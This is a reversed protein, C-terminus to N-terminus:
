GDSFQGFEDSVGRNLIEKLRQGYKMATNQVVEKKVLLYTILEEMFRVDLKNLSLDIVEYRYQLFEIYRRKKSIMKELTNPSRHGSAVLQLFHLINENIALVLTKIWTKCDFITRSDISLKEILKVLQEKETKLLALKEPGPARGNRFAKELRNAYDVYEMVLQDLSESFALNQIREEKMREGNIPTRYSELVLAPTALEHQAKILDFHRELDTKTQGIKKNFLKSGPDTERVEKREIDWDDSSVKFGLSTEEQLGDITVRVYIPAKGDLTMKKRKVYFLISLQQRIYM